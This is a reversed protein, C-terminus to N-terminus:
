MSKKRIFLGTALDKIAAVNVGTLQAFQFEEICKPEEFSAKKLRQNLTNAERRETEDQVILEMFELYGLNNSRAQELRLDLSELIGSLRLLKLRSTLLPSISM